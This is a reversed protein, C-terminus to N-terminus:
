ENNTVPKLIEEYPTFDFNDKEEWGDNLCQNIYAFVQVYFMNIEQVTEFTDYVATGDDKQGLKFTVPLVQDPMMNALRQAESYNNQNEMSLWVNVTEGADDGHLVTWVFGDLIRADTQANIDNIIAQKVVDLGWAAMQKKYFYIEYWEYLDHPNEGELRKLEYGVILRSADERIYAFDTKKGCIKNM